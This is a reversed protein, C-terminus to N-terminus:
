LSKFGIREGVALRKLLVSREPPDLGIVDPHDKIGFGVSFTPQKNPSNAGIM